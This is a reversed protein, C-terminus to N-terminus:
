VTCILIECEILLASPVYSSITMTWFSYTIHLPVKVQFPFIHRFSEGRMSCRWMFGTYKPCHQLKSIHKICCKDTGLEVPRPVKCMYLTKWKIWKKGSRKILVITQRWFLIQIPGSCGSMLLLWRFSIHYSFQMRINNSM